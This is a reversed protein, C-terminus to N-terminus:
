KGRKIANVRAMVRITEFTNRSLKPSPRNFNTKKAKGANKTAAIKRIESNVQRDSVLVGLRLNLERSLGDIIIQIAEDQSNVM